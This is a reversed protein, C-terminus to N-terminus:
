RWDEQQCERSCYRVLKCPCKKMTAAEKGCNECVRVKSKPTGGEKEKEEEATKKAQEVEAINALLLKVVEHHGNLRSMSLPTAGDPMTQNVDVGSALLLEVM